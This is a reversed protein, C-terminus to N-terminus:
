NNVTTLLRSPQTNFKADDLLIKSTHSCFTSDSSSFFSGCSRLQVREFEIESRTNSWINAGWTTQFKKFNVHIEPKRFFLFCFRSHFFQTREERDTNEGRLAGM